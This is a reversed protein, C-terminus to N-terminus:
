GGFLVECPRLFSSLELLLTSFLNLYKNEMLKHKSDRFIWWKQNKTFITRVLTIGEFSYIVTGFFLPLMKWDSVYRRESIPPLDQCIIYITAIYGSIILFNALSSLPVLFKLNRITTSLMIPVLVVLLRIPLNLDIGWVGLVQSFFFHKWWNLSYFNCSFHQNFFTADWRNCIQRFLCLISM